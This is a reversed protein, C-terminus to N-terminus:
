SSLKESAMDLMWGLKPTFSVMREAMAPDGSKEARKILQSTLAAEKFLLEALLAAEDAM